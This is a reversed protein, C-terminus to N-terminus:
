QSDYHHDSFSQIEVPWRVCDWPNSKWPIFLVSHISNQQIMKWFTRQNKEGAGGRKQCRTETLVNLTVYSWVTETSAFWWILCWAVCLTPQWCSSQLHDCWCELSKTLTHTSYLISVITDEINNPEYVNRICKYWYQCSCTAEYMYILMHLTRHTIYLVCILGQYQFEGGRGGAGSRSNLLPMYMYTKYWDVCHLIQEVLYWCQWHISLSLVSHSMQWIFCM